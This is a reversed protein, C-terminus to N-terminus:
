HVGTPVGFVSVNTGQSARAVDRFDDSGADESHDSLLAKDAETYYIRKRYKM